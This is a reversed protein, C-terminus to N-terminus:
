ATAYNMEQANNKLQWKLVETSAPSPQPLRYNADSYFTKCINDIYFWGKKFKVQLAEDTLSVLDKDILDDIKDKFIDYLDVGHARKYDARKVRLLKLGLVLSRCRREHESAYSGMAITLNGANAQEIYRNINPENLYMHHNLFGYGGSGLAMLDGCEYWVHSLHDTLYFTSTDLGMYPKGGEPDIPYTKVGLDDWEKSIPGGFDNYTVAVYRNSLVQDLFYWYMQDATQSSPCIPTLGSQIGFFAESGPLVLYNYISFSNVPLQMLTRVDEEWMKMTQGPIGIMYDLCINEMGMRHLMQITNAAKEGTHARARGLYRLLADNFTQVGLSVRDVGHKLLVETKREDIDVPTSEITISCRDTFEFRSKFFSLLDDLEHARLTTPTGGGIYGSSVKVGKMYAHKAYTDIENKIAEIYREVLTNRTNFKNYPCSTCVQNCFPIHMYFSVDQHPARRHDFVQQPSLLHVDCPYWRVFEIDRDPYERWYSPTDLFNRTISNTTIM